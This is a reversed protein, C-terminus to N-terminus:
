PATTMGNELDAQIGRDENKGVRYYKQMTWQDASFVDEYCRSDWASSMQGSQTIIIRVARPDTDRLEKLKAIKDSQSPIEDVIDAPQQDDLANFSDPLQFAIKGQVAPTYSASPLLDPVMSSALLTGVPGLDAGYLHKPVCQDMTQSPGNANPAFVQVNLGRYAVPNGNGDDRKGSLTVEICAAERRACPDTSECGPALASALGLALFGIASIRPSGLTTAM